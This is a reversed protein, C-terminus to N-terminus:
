CQPIHVVQKCLALMFEGFLFAKWVRTERLDGTEKALDQSQGRVRFAFEVGLCIFM